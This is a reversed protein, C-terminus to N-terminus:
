EHEQQMSSLCMHQAFVSASSKGVSAFEEAIEEQKSSRMWSGGIKSCLLLLIHHPLCETLRGACSNAQQAENVDTTGVNVWQEVKTVDLQSKAIM